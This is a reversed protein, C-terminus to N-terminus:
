KEKIVDSSQLHPGIFPVYAMSVIRDIRYRGSLIRMRGLRALFLNQWSDTMLRETASLGACSALFAVGITNMCTM